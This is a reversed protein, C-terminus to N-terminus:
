VSWIEDFDDCTAITPSTELLRPVRGALEQTRGNVQAFHRLLAGLRDPALAVETTENM